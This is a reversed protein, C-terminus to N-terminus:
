ILAKKPYDRRWFITPLLKGTDIGSICKIQHLSRMRRVVNQNKTCTFRKQQERVNRLNRVPRALSESQFPAARIAIKFFRSDLRLAGVSHKHCGAPVEWVLASPPRRFSSGTMYAPNGDPSDGEQRRWIPPRFTQLIEVNVRLWRQRM